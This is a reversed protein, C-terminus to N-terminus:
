ASACGGRANMISPVGSARIHIQDGGGAVIRCLIKVAIVYTAPYERRM